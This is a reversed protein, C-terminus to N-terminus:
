VTEGPAEDRIDGPPDIIGEAFRVLAACLVFLGVILTLMLINLLV